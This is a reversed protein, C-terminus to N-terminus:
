EDQSVEEILDQLLESWQVQISVEFKPGSLSGLPYRFSAEEAKWTCGSTFLYGLRLRLVVGALPSAQTVISPEALYLWQTLRSRFPTVLADEFSSPTHDVLTLTANAGGLLLSLMVDRDATSTWPWELLGGGMSVSLRAWRDDTRSATGGSMVVFGVRPGHAFGVLSSQGGMLLTNPMPAYSAATLAESLGELGAQWAAGSLGGFMYDPMPAEPPLGQETTQGVGIIACLGILILSVLFARHIM